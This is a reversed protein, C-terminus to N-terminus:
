TAEAFFRIYQRLYAARSHGRYRLALIGVIRVSERPEHQDALCIVEVAYGREALAEAHRKVRADFIYQSYAIILVRRIPKRPSRRAPEIVPATPMLISNAPETAM